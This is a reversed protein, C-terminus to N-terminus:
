SGSDHGMMSDHSGESFDRGGVQRGHGMRWWAIVCGRHIVQWHGATGGNWIRHCKGEWNRWLHAHWCVTLLNCLRRRDRCRCGLRFLRCEVFVVVRTGREHVFLGQM